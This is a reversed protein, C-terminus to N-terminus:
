FDVVRVFVKMIHQQGPGLEVAFGSVNSPEICIMRLWEDKGLDTLSRAKETWPNWAVTTCSNEKRIRLCRQLVPDELAIEDKTNLYVRDTEAGLVIDGLQMKTQHFDVKDIYRLADPIRARTMEVDGVRFYAHLAEEFKLSTRGTNTVMLELSLEKGFSASLDLRFDCPWWKKSAEDSETSM